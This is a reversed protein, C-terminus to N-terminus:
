EIRFNALRFDAEYDRDPQFGVNLVLSGGSISMEGSVMQELPCRVTQWESQTDLGAGEGPNWRYSNNWDWNWAFEYGKGLLPYGTRTQVEFVFYRDAVAADSLDMTKEFSLEVWSWETIMGSFHLSTLGQADTEVTVNKDTMKREVASLDAYLLGETPRLPLKVVMAEGAATLWNVSVTSNDPTGEPVVFRLGTDDAASLTVSQGNLLVSVDYYAFHEGSITAETGPEQFENLLGDVVIEPLTVVFAFTATGMDTTYTITNVHEKSFGQPITVIARTSMTYTNETDAAITNFSVSKLNNLNRGEICVTQGQRGETIPSNLDTVDYVATIVPVGTNPQKDAAIYNDDYDAYNDCAVCLLSLLGLVCLSKINRTIM